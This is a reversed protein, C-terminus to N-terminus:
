RVSLKIQLFRILWLILLAMLLILLGLCTTIFGNKVLLNGILQFLLCVGGVKILFKNLYQTRSRIYDEKTIPTQRIIRYISILRDNKKVYMLPQMHLYAALIMLLFIQFIPPISFADTAIPIACLPCCIVLLMITVIRLMMFDDRYAIKLQKDFEAIANM